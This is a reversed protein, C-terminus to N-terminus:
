LVTKRPRPRGRGTVSAKKFGDRVIRVIRRPTFYRKANPPPQTVFAMRKPPIHEAHQWRGAPLPMTTLRIPSHYNRKQAITEKGAPLVGAAREV